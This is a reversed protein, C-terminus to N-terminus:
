GQFTVTKPEGMQSRSGLNMTKTSDFLVSKPKTMTGLGSNRSPAFTSYKTSVVKSTDFGTANPYSLGRKSGTMLISDYDIQNERLETIKNKQLKAPTLNESIGTGKFGTRPTNKLIPIPTPSPSQNSLFESVKLKNEENLTRSYVPNIYDQGRIPPIEYLTRLDSVKPVTKSHYIEDKKMVGTGAMKTRSEHAHHDCEMDDSEEEDDVEPPTLPRAVPRGKIFDMYTENYSKTYPELRQLQSYFRDKTNKV